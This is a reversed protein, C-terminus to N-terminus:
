NPNYFQNSFKLPYNTLISNIYDVSAQDTSDNVSKLSKINFDTHKLQGNLKFEEETKPPHFQDNYPEQYDITYMLQQNDTDVISAQGFQPTMQQTTQDTEKDNVVELISFIESLAQIKNVIYFLTTLIAILCIGLTLMYINSQMPFFGFIISM